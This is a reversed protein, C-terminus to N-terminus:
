IEHLVAWGESNYTGKSVQQPGETRKNLPVVGGILETRPLPGRKDLLALASTRPEFEDGSDMSCLSSSSSHPTPPRLPPRSNMPMPPKCPLKTKTTRPVAAYCGVGRPTGTEPRINATSNSFTSVSVTSANFSGRAEKAFNDQGCPQGHVSNCPKASIPVALPESPHPLMKAPFSPVLHDSSLSPVENAVTVPSGKESSEMVERTFQYTMCGVSVRTLRAGEKIEVSHLSVLRRGKGKPPMKEVVEISRLALASHLSKKESSPLLLPAFASASEPLDSQAESGGAALPLSVSVCGDCSEPQAFKPVDDSGSQTSPPIVSAFYPDVKRARREEAAMEDFVAAAMAGAGKHRLPEERSFKSVAASTAGGQTSTSTQAKVSSDKACQKLRGGPSVKQPAYTGPGKTGRGSM